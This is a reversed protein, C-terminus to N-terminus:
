GSASAKRRLGVFFAEKSEDVMPAKSPNAVAAPAQLGVDIYSPQHNSAPISEQVKDQRSSLRVTQHIFDKVMRQVDPSLFDGQFTAVGKPPEAPILDIGIVKGGPRTRDLAVLDVVVSKPKFLRYKADMELLKFAARSKLGQVKAERAYADKSQRQKWRSNSSSFRIFIASCQKLSPRNLATICLTSRQAPKM